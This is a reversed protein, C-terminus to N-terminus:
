IAKNLAPLSINWSSSILSKDDNSIKKWLEETIFPMFPHLKILIFNLSISTVYKIEDLEDHNPENFGFGILELYWDCFYAM